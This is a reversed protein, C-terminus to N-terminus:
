PTKISDTAFIPVFFGFMRVSLQIVGLYFFAKSRLHLDFVRATVAGAV